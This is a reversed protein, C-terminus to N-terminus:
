IIHGDAFYGNPWIDKPWIAKPLTDKPLIDPWPLFFSLYAENLSNHSLHM